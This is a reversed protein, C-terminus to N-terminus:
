EQFPRCDNWEVLDALGVNNSIWECVDNLFHNDASNLISEADRDDADELDLNDIAFERIHELTFLDDVDYNDVVYDVVDYSPMEDLADAYSMGRLDLFEDLSLRDVDDHGLDLGRSFGDSYAKLADAGYTVMADLEILTRELKM